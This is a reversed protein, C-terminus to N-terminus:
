ISNLLKMNVSDNGFKDRIILMDGDKIERASICIRRNKYTKPYNPLIKNDKSITLKFDGILLTDRTGVLCIKGKGRAIVEDNNGDPSEIVFSVEDNNGNYKLTGSIAKSNGDRLGSKKKLEDLNIELIQTQNNENVITSNSEKSINTDDIALLTSSTIFITTLLNIVKKIRM